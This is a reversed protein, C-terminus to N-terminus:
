FSDLIAEIEDPREQYIPCVICRSKIFGVWFDRESLSMNGLVKMWDFEWCTKKASFAPCDDSCTGTGCGPNIDWCSSESM